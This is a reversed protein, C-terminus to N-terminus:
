ERECLTMHVETCARDAWLSDASEAVVCAAHDNPNVPEWHDVTMAEGTIWKYSSRAGTLPDSSELGIWRDDKGFTAILGQEASSTITVLHAGAVACLAKAAPQNRAGLAFYCHGDLRVGGEETCAIPVDSSADKSGGAESVPAGGDSSSSDGASADAVAMATFPGGGCAAAAAVIALTWARNVEIARTARPM